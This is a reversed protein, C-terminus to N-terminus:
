PKIRARQAAVQAERRWYTLLDSVSQEFPIETKWGTAKIFKEVSPIQLTVDAPLFLNPDCRTHITVTAPSILRELIQGVTMMTTDSPM